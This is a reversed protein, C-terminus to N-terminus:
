NKTGSVSEPQLLAPPYKICVFYLNSYVLTLSKDSFKQSKGKVNCEDVIVMM